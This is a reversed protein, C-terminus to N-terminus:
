SLWQLSGKRELIKFHIVFSGTMVWTFVHKGSECLIKRQSLVRKLPLQWSTTLTLKWHGYILSRDYWTKVEEVTTHSHPLSLTTKLEKAQKWQSNSRKLLNWEKSLIHQSKRGFTKIECYELQIEVGPGTVDSASLWQILLAYEMSIRETGHTKLTLWQVFFVFSIWLSHVFTWAAGM